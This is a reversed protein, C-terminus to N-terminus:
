AFVRGSVRLVATRLNLALPKFLPAVAAPITCKSFLIVAFIEGTPLVGGVGLVSRVGYPVVFQEQAPVIPSGIADEVHFVNFTGNAHELFLEPRPEVLEELGIGLQHALATVMPAGAVFDRSRLPISQHGRSTQRQNWDSHDGTTGLLTLCTLSGWPAEPQLMRAASEQLDPPLGEYAHTKFFRALALAPRGERDALNGYLYQSVAHGLAEMSAYETGLRRLAAGLEVMDGLGFNELEWM